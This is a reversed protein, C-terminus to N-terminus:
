NGRKEGISEFAGGTELLSQSVDPKGATAMALESALLRVVAERFLPDWTSELPANNYVVRASAMNTWIVKTQISSVVANGVVWNVPLPNNFDTFSTSSPMVQWVQIGNTPYLYEYSWPFPAVNGSLTLGVMNRTFDWGFQRAVTAVCPAYIAAAAKGLTSTDFNPAVGTVPTPNDWGLLQVAQNVIDTSTAAM